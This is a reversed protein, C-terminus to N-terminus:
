KKNNKLIDLHLNLATIGLAPDSFLKEMAMANSKAFEYQNILALHKEALKSPVIIALL